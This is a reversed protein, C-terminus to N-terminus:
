PPRPCGILPCPDTSPGIPSSSFTVANCSGLLKAQVLELSNNVRHCVGSSTLSLVGAQGASCSCVVSVEYRQIYILMESLILM